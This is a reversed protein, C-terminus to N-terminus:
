GALEIGRANTFDGISGRLGVDEGWWGPGGGSELEGRGGGGVRTMEEVVTIM